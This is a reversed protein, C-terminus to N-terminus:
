TVNGHSLSYVRSQLTMQRLTDLPMTMLWVAFVRQLEILLAWCSQCRSPGVLSSEQDRYWSGGLTKDVGQCSGAVPLSWYLEAPVLSLFVPQTGHFSSPRFWLQGLHYIQNESYKIYRRKMKDSRIILTDHRRCFVNHPTILFIWASLISIMWKRNITHKLLKM